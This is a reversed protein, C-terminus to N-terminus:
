NVFVASPQLPMVSPGVFLQVTDTLNSGVLMPAFDALRAAVAPPLADAVNAPTPCCHEVLAWHPPVVGTQLEAM